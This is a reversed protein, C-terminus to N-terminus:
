LGKSELALIVLKYSIQSESKKRMRFITEGSLKM